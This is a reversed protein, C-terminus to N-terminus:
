RKKRTRNLTTNAANEDFLPSLKKELKEQSMLDKAYVAILTIGHNECIRTKEQIRKDYDPNGALGFYEILVDGVKFDARYGGEPYGPEKIHRISCKHLFEDITKEGLSLCVHGDRAITQIGRSTKRAGEELVGAKILANLWSRFHSKVCWVTPKNQLLRLLAVRSDRPVSRLDAIGEGFNQPPVRGIITSLKKLYKLVATKPLTDNGSGQLVAGRLCPSCFDIEDIGLRQILPFPLSDEVFKHKCLLCRKWRPRRIKRTLGIQHARARAFHMLVNYWAYRRCLPDRKKWSNIQKADTVKVIEETVYSCWEWKKEAIVRALLADHDPTWWELIYHNEAVQPDGVM